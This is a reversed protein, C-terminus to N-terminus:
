LGHAFCLFGYMKFDGNYRVFFEFVVRPVDTVDRVCVAGFDCRCYSAGEANDQIEM